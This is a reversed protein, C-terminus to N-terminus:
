IPGIVVFDFELELIVAMMCSLMGFTIPETGFCSTNTGCFHVVLHEKSSLYVIKYRRTAVTPAAMNLM